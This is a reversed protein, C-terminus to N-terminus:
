ATVSTLWHEVLSPLCVFFYHHRHGLRLPNAVSCGLLERLIDRLSHALLFLNICLHSGPQCRLRAVIQWRARIFDDVSDDSALDVFNLLCGVYGVIWLERQAGIQLLRNPLLCDRMTVVIALILNIAEAVFALFRPRAAHVLM